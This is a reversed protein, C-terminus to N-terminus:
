LTRGKDPYACRWRVVKLAPHDQSWRAIETPALFMCQFLPGSSEFQLREPRCQTPHATLCVTLILDVLNM